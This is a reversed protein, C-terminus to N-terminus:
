RRKKKKIETAGDDKEIKNNMNMNRFLTPHIFIHIIMNLYKKIKLIWRVCRM